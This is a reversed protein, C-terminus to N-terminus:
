PSQSGRDRRLLAAKDKDTLRVGLQRAVAAVYEALEWPQWGERLAEAPAAELARRARRRAAPSLDALLKNEATHM